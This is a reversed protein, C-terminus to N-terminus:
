FWGPFAWEVLVLLGFIAAIIILAVLTFILGAVTEVM